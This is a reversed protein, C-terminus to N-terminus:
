SKCPVEFDRSKPCELTPPSQLASNFGTLAYVIQRQRDNTDQFEDVLVARLESQWQTRIPSHTTLLKTTLFELDDFDLSHREGKLSEYERFLRSSSAIFRPSTRPLRSM